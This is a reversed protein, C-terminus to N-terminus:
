VPEVVALFDAGARLLPGCNKPAIGGIACGLLEVM